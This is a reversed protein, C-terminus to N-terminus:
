ILIAIQLNLLIMKLQNMKTTMNMFLKLPLCKIIKNVRCHALSVQTLQVKEWFIM